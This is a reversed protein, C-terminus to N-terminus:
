KTLDKYIEQSVYYAMCSFWGILFQPIQVKLIHENLQNLLVMMLIASLTPVVYKMNNTTQIKTSFLLANLEIKGEL